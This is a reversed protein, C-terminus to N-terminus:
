IEYNSQYTNLSGAIVHHDNIALKLPWKSNSQNTNLSEDISYPYSLTLNIEHYNASTFTHAELAETNLAIVDRNGHVFLLM